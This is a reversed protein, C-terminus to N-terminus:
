TAQASGGAWRMPWGPWNPSPRPTAPETLSANPPPDLTGKRGCAALGLAAAVVVAVLALRGLRDAFSNLCGREGFEGAGYWFKAHVRASVIALLSAVAIAKTVRWYSSGSM